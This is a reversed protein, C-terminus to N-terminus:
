CSRSVLVVTQLTNLQGAKAARRCSRRPLGAESDCTAAALCTGTRQFANSPAGLASRDWLFRSLPEPLYSVIKPFPAFTRERFITQSSRCSSAAHRFAASWGAPGWAGLDNTIQSKHTEISIPSQQDTISPPSEANSNLEEMMLGTLDGFGILIM